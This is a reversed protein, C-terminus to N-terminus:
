TYLVCFIYLLIGERIKGKIWPSMCTSLWLILYLLFTYLQFTIIPIWFSQSSHDSFLKNLHYTISIIYIEIHLSFPVKLISCIYILEGLLILWYKNLVWQVLCQKDCKFKLVTGYPLITTNMKYTPFSLCLLAINFLKDFCAALLSPLPSQFGPRSSESGKNVVM